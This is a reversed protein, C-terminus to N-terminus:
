ATGIATGGMNVEYLVTRGPRTRFVRKGPERWIRVFEQGLEDSRCGTVQTRGMKVVERFEDGKRRFAKVLECLQPLCSQM